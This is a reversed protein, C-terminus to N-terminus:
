DHLSHPLAEERQQGSNESRLDSGLEREWGSGGVLWPEGDRGWTGQLRSPWLLHSLLSWLVALTDASRSPSRSPPRRQRAWSPPAPYAQGPLRLGRCVFCLSGAQAGPALSAGRRSLSWPTSSSPLHLPLLHSTLRHSCPCLTSSALCTCPSCALLSTAPAPVSGGPLGPHAGSSYTFSGCAAPAPLPRADTPESPELFVSAASRLAPGSSATALATIVLPPAQPAGAPGRPVTSIAPLGKQAEHIPCLRQRMPSPPPPQPQRQQQQQVSPPPARRWGSGGAQHSHYALQWHSQPSSRCPGHARLATSDQRRPHCCGPLFSTPTVPGADRVEPPCRCAHALDLEPDWFYHRSPTQADKAFHVKYHKHM